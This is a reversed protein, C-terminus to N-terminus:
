DGTEDIEKELLSASEHLSVLDTHLSKLKQQLSFPLLNSGIILSTTDLLNILTPKAKTSLWILSDTEEQSIVNNLIQIKGLNQLTQLYKRGFVLALPTIVILTTLNIISATELSSIPNDILFVVLLTLTLILSQIPEFILSISFLLLYLLFFAPSHLGGTSLILLLSVSTFMVGDITALLQQRGKFTIKAVFYFLVVLGVAQLNYRSLAPVSAWLFTVIVSAVLLLTHPVFTLM